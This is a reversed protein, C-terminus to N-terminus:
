TLVEQLENDEIADSDEGGEIPRWLASVIAVVVIGALLFGISWSNNDVFRTL